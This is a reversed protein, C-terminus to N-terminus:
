RAQANCRALRAADFMEDGAVFSTLRGLKRAVQACVIDARAETKPVVWRNGEGHWVVHDIIPATVSAPVMTIAAYYPAHQAALPTALAGLGGIAVAMPFGLVKEVIRM